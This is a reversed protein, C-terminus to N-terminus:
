DDSTDAGVPATMDELLQKLEPDKKEKLLVKWDADLFREYCANKTALDNGWREQVLRRFEAALRMLRDWHKPFVTDLILKLHGAMFPAKGDTSIAATLCDRRLVAPFIFDCLQPQDVVNVLVGADRADKCVQENVNMDSSASIVLNFTGAEPSQYPREQIEIKGSEAFFRLRKHITPAIVTVKTDYDLLTEVKRLAVNGGGVVLCDRDKLSLSMPM